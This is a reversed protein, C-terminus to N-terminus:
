KASALRSRVPVPLGRGRSRDHKTCSSTVLLQGGRKALLHLCHKLHSLEIIYFSFCMLSYKKRAIVLWVKLKINNWCRSNCKNSLPYLIVTNSWTSVYEPEDITCYSSSIMVYHNSRPGSLSTIPLRPFFWSKPDSCGNVSVIRCDLATNFIPSDPKFCM